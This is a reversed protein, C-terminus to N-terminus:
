PTPACLARMRESWNLAGALPDSSDQRPLSQGMRSIRTALQQAFPAGARVVSRSTHPATAHTSPRTTTRVTPTGASLPQRFVETVWIVGGVTVTGVGVERMAPDLINARHGASDMFMSHITSVDAGFGVNEAASRFCCVVSFDSTHFLAGAKAMAASHSRAYSTLDSRVTLARLGHAARAANIKSVFASETTSASAGRAGTLTTAVLAAATLVSLLVARPQSRM